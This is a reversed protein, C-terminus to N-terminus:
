LELKVYLNYTEKAELNACYCCVKGSINKKHLHKWTNQSWHKWKIGRVVGSLWQQKWPTYFPLTSWFHTLCTLSQWFLARLEQPKSLQWFHNWRSRRKLRGGSFKGLHKSYREYGDSTLTVPPKSSKEYLTIYGPNNLSYFKNKLDSM